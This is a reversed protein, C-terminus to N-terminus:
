YPLGKEIVTCGQKILRVTGKLRCSGDRVEATLSGGPQRLTVTVPTGSEDALFLGCATTGSACSNEWCLTDAAPVYVLPTLSESERNLFMLGVADARLFECWIRAYKGARSRLAEFNEMDSYKGCKNIRLADPKPCLFTGGDKEDIIVHSIGDFTVVPLQGAGPLVVREIKVPDPMDVTGQWSGDPLGGVETRILGSAGSVRLFMESKGPNQDAAYVAACLSANGCFEGGAMRLVIDCSDDFSIFGVQETGAEMDMLRAAVAPQHSVPVPTEVLITINGTPNMVCYDTKM